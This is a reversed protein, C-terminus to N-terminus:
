SKIVDAAKIYEQISDMVVPQRDPGVFSFSRDSLGLFGRDKGPFNVDRSDFKVTNQSNTVIDSSYDDRFGDLNSAPNVLDVGDCVCIETFTDMPVSVNSETVSIM